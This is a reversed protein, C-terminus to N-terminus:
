QFTTIAPLVTAGAAIEQLYGQFQKLYYEAFEMDGGDKYIRSVAGCVVANTYVEPAQPSSTQTYDTYVVKCFPSTTYITDGWINWYGFVYPAKSAYVNGNNLMNLIDGYSELEQGPIFQAVITSTGSGAGSLDVEISNVANYYTTSFKYDPDISEFSVYYDTNISLGTPLVGTATFRVKAGPVINGTQGLLEISNDGISVDSSTFTIDGPLNQCLVNLIIGTRAPLNAGNLLAASTQVFISQFPSQLTKAILTSVEGDALLIANNIEEPSRYQFNSNDPANGTTSAGFATQSAQLESVVM